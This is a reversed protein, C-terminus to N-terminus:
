EDDDEDDDYDEDVYCAGYYWGDKVDASCSVVQM